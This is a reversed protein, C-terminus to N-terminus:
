AMLVQLNIPIHKLNTPLQIEIYLEWYERHSDFPDYYGWCENIYNM